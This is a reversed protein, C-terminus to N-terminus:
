QQARAHTHKRRLLAGEPQRPTTISSLSLSPSPSASSLTSAPHTNDRARARQTILHLLSAHQQQPRISQRRLIAIQRQPALSSANLSLSPPSRALSRCRRRRRIKPTPFWPNEPNPTHNGPNAGQPRAGSDLPRAASHSRSSAPPRPADLRLRVLATPCRPLTAVRPPAPPRAARRAPVTAGRARAPKGVEPERGGRAANSDGGVNERSTRASANVLFFTFSSSFSPRITNKLIKNSM